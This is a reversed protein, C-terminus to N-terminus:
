LLFSQIFVPIDKLVLPPKYQFVSLIDTNLFITDYVLLIPIISIYQFSNHNLIFQSSQHTSTFDAQALLHRNHCCDEKDISCGMKKTAQRKSMQSSKQQSNGKAGYCDTADGIFSISKLHGQCFHMDISLGISSFFVLFAM